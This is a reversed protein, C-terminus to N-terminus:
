SSDKLIDEHIGHILNTAHRNQGRRENVRGMYKISSADRDSKWFIQQKIVSELHLIQPSAFQHLPQPHPHQLTLPGVQSRLWSGKHHHHRLDIDRWSWLLSRSSKSNSKVTQHQRIMIKTDVGDAALIITMQFNHCADPSPAPLSTSPSASSEGDLAMPMHNKTRVARTYGTFDLGLRILTLILRQLHVSHAAGMTRDLSPVSGLQQWAKCSKCCSKSSYPRTWYRHRVSVTVTDHIFPTISM